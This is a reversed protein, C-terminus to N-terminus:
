SPKLTSELSIIFVTKIYAIQENTLIKEIFNQPNKGLESTQEQMIGDSSLTKWLPLQACYLPM